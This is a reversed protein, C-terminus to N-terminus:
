CFILNGLFDKLVSQQSSQKLILTSFVSVDRIQLFLFIFVLDHINIKGNKSICNSIGKTIELSLSNFTLITYNPFTLNGKFFDKRCGHYYSIFTETIFLANNNCIYDYSLFGVMNTYTIHCIFCTKIVTKKRIRLSLFLLLKM